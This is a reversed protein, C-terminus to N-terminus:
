RDPRFSREKENKLENDFAKLTFVFGRFVLFERILDDIYEYCFSMKGVRVLSCGKLRKLDSSINKEGVGRKNQCLNRSRKNPM